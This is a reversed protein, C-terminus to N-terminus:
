WETYFDVLVARGNTAAAKLGEDVSALRPAHPKEAATQASVASGMLTALALLLHSKRM